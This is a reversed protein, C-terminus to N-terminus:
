SNEPVYCFFGFRGNISVFVTNETDVLKNAIMRGWGYIYVYVHARKTCGIKGEELSVSTSRFLDWQKM